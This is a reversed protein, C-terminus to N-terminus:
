SSIAPYSKENEAFIASSAVLESRPDDALIVFLRVGSSLKQGFFAVPRAGRGCQEIIGARLGAATEVPIAALDITQNNSTVAWSM